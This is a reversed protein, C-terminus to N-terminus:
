TNNPYARLIAEAFYRNAMIPLAGVQEAGELVSFLEGSLQWVFKGKPEVASIRISNLWPQFDPGQVSYIEHHQETLYFSGDSKYLTVVCDLELKRAKTWAELGGTAEIAGSAYEPMVFNPDSLLEYVSTEEKHGQECGTVVFAAALILWCMMDSFRKIMKNGQM